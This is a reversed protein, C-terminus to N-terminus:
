NKKPLLEGHSILVEPIASMERGAFSIYDNDYISSRITLSTDKKCIFIVGMASCKGYRPSKVRRMM